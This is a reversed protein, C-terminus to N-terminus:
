GMQASEAADDTKATERPDWEIALSVVGDGPIASATGDDIEVRRPPPLHAEGDDGAIDIGTGAALNADLERLSALLHECREAVEEAHDPPFIGGIVPEISVDRSRNSLVANCVAGLLVVLGSFYLWTLLILIGTVVSSEPSKFGV